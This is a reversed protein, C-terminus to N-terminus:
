YDSDSTNTQNSYHKKIHYDEFCPATCLAVGCSSCWYITEKRINKGKCVVCKRLPHEKKETRPIYSPFHRATLRTVPEIDVSSRRQHHKPLLETCRSSTILERVLALQFQYHSLKPRDTTYKLYLIYGQLVMTNLLFFFEKKWVKMVKRAFGYYKAMQDNRDVGGMHKNYDIICQPKMIKDGTKRDNRGTDAMTCSHVTTLMYVDRKDKWKLCRLYEKSYVVYEGRKLKMAKVEQPMGKRNPMVTGTAGIKRQYLDSFLTPSTYYRDVYVRYGLNQLREGLLDFVVRYTHGHEQAADTKGTYIQWDIAYGSSSECLEYIKVGFKVPKMPNYVRYSVNGKWLMTAEDLALEREPIYVNKSREVYRTNLERVRFLPDYGDEGRKKIQSTNAAHLFKLILEFRNRNMITGFFPTECVEDMTWYDELKPKVVLGMAIVLAFFLKLEEDNTPKWSRIRSTAPLSDMPTNVFFQDAYRNTEEAILKLDDATLCFLQVFGLVSDPIPVQIGPAGVFPFEEVERDNKQWESHLESPSSTPNRQRSALSQRSNQAPIGRGRGRTAGRGRGRGRRTPNIGVTFHVFWHYM